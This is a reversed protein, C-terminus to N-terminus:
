RTTRGLGEELVRVLSDASQEITFRNLFCTRAARGMLERAKVDMAAWRRLLDSVGAQNDEAVLGAGDAEIERWINVPRSILVPRSCALAEAVAIGFNEQHSPLIYADSEHFAGWKVDAQVMGLWHIRDRYPISNAIGDLIERYDDAVPGAIALQLEPEAAALEPWSRLLLDVGKKPHVRSLYLLFRRGALEPFAARFAARQKAENDPPGATGYNVVRETVRYPRFAQRALIKEEECTFLVARADRLVRYQLPWYLSKKLRKLPFARNFYPDLMGHTFVWYPRGLRRAANRVALNQYQWIGRCVVADFEAIHAHLWPAMGPAFAYPGRAPGAAHLKTPFDALFPADPADGSLVEVEHGRRAMPGSIQRVGEIPGGAKPDVTTIVFLIRM